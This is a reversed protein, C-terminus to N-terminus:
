CMEEDFFLVVKGKEIAPDEILKMAEQIKLFHFRHTIMDRVELKKEEFLRIVAPFKKNHLRTGRVDLERATISFQAIASPSPNFGLTIVRGAPCVVKLAEEFSRVTCVADIVVSAMIGGTLNSIAAPVDERGAHIVADAGYRLAMQLRNDVIDSMFCTAGAIKARKLISLGAPGAGMIFVVDAATLEARSCTQEAITFPEIMVAEEWLLHDPIRHVSEQPMVIYEQYGGDVHVSRVKLRGCVNSRGIKCQYCAGCSIVPDMVVRDGKQFLNVVSGVEAIEGAIEHGIVRPYTAVPSTGHYIHVDSGCIGAAKVKILVEDPSQIVPLPRDQIELRYAGTVCIAKMTKM